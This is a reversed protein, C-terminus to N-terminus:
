LLALEASCPPATPAAILARGVVTGGDQILWYPPSKYMKPGWFRTHLRPLHSRQPPGLPLVDGLNRVSYTRGITLVLGCDTPSSRLERMDCWLELCCLSERLYIDPDGFFGLTTSGQWDGFIAGVARYYGQM